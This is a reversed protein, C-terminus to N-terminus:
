RVEQVVPGRVPCYTSCYPSYRVWERRREGTTRREKGKRGKGFFVRDLSCFWWYKLGRIFWNSERRRDFV